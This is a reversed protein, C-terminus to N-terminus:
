KSFTIKRIIHQSKDGVYLTARTIQSWAKENDFSAATGTGDGYNYGPVAPWHQCAGGSNDERITGNEM